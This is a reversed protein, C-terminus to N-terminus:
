LWHGDALYPCPCAGEGPPRMLQLLESPALGWLKPRSLSNASHLRRPRNATALQINGNLDCNVYAGSLMAYFNLIAGNSEHKRSLRRRTYLKAM